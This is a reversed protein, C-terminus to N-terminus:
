KGCYIRIASATYEATGEGCRDINGKFREDCVYMEGLGSLIEFTCTYFHESIYGQLEKVLSRAEESDACLGRSKCEAFRAFISDMGEAVDSWKEKTYDKTKEAHERYAETDGWRKRAEAEYNKNNMVYGRKKVVIIDCMSYCNLVGGEM